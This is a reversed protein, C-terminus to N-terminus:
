MLLADVIKGVNIRINNKQMYSVILRVISYVQEDPNGSLIAEAISTLITVGDDDKSLNKLFRPWQPVETKIATIADLLKDVHLVTFSPIRQFNGSKEYVWVVADLGEFGYLTEGYSLAMLPVAITPIEINFEDYQLEFARQILAIDTFKAKSTPILTMMISHARDGKNIRIVYAGYVLGLNAALFCDSCIVYPVNEKVSYNSHLYKGYIPGISLYTTIATKSRSRRGENRAYKHNTDEYIRITKFGTISVVMSKVWNKFAPKNVNAEDIKEFFKIIAEDHELTKRGAEQILVLQRIARKEDANTIEGDIDIIFRDGVREVTGSTKGAWMLYRVIGHMILSDTVLNHGPTYLRM